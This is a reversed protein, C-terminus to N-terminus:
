LVLGKSTNIMTKWASRNRVARFGLPYAYSLKLGGGKTLNSPFHADHLIFVNLQLKGIPLQHIGEPTPQRGKSHGRGDQSQWASYRLAFSNNRGRASGGPSSSIRSSPKMKFVLIMFLRCRRNSKDDDNLANKLIDASSVCNNLWM